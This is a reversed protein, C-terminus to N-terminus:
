FGSALSVLVQRVVFEHGAFGLRGGRGRSRCRTRWGLKGVHTRQVEDLIERNWLPRYLPPAEALTLFLDRLSFNALVCANLVM